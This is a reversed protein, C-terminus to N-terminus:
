SFDTGYDSVVEEDQEIDRSAAYGFYPLGRHIMWKIHANPAEQLGRYDNILMMENAITQSHICVFFQNKWNVIWNYSAGIQKAAASHNLFLIKGVHEGLDEDKLIKKKAFLGREDKCDALPHPQPGKYFLRPTIKRIELHPHVRKEEICLTIKNQDEPRNSCLALRLVDIHIDLGVSEPSYIWKKPWNNPSM